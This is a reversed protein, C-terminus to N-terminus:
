KFVAYLLGVQSIFCSFIGWFIGYAWGMLMYDKNKCLETIERLFVMINFEEEDSHDKYDDMDRFILLTMVLGAVALIVNATVM